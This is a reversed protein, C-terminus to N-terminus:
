IRLPLSFSVPSNRPPYDVSPAAIGAPHASIADIGTSSDLDASFAVAIDTSYDARQSPMLVHEAANDPEESAGQLDIAAMPAEFALDVVLDAISWVCLILTLLGILRNHRTLFRRTM